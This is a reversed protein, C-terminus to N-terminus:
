VASQEQSPAQELAALLASQKRQRKRENAAHCIRCYRQNRYWRTNAESFPHGESCHEKKSNFNRRKAVADLMNDLPTGLFLHEPNTCPPNDCHHLVWLGPPIPGIHIEYSLRHAFLNKRIGKNSVAVQGYGDEHSAGKWQWCSPTQTVHEWFKVHATKAIPGPM